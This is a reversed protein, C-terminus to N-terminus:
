AFQGNKEKYLLKFHKIGIVGDEMREKWFMHGMFLFATYVKTIKWM